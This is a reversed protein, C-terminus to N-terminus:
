WVKNFLNKKLGDWTGKQTGLVPTVLALGFVTSPFNPLILLITGLFASFISPELATGFVFRILISKQSPM